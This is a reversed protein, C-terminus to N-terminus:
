HANHEVRGLRIQIPITTDDLTALDDDTFISIGKFTLKAAKSKIQEVVLAAYKQSAKLDDEKKSDTNKASLNKVFLLKQELLTLDQNLIIADEMTITEFTGELGELEDKHANLQTNYGFADTGFKLESEVMSAVVARVTSIVSLASDIREIADPMKLFENVDTINRLNNSEEQIVNFVSMSQGSTMEFDTTRLIDFLPNLHSQKNLAKEYLRTSASSKIWKIVIEKLEDGYAPNDEFEQKM